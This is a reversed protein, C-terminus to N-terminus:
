FSGRHGFADVITCPGDASPASIQSMDDVAVVVPTDDACTLTIQTGPILPAAATPNGPVSRLRIGLPAEVYELTLLENAPTVRIEAPSVEFSPLEIRYPEPEKGEERITRGEVIFRYTGLPINTWGDAEIGEGVAQWIFSWFHRREVFLDSTKAPSPTHSLMIGPGNHTAPRGDGLDIPEFTGDRNYQLTVRPNDISVDGGEFAAFYFGDLARVTQPPTLPDLSNRPLGAPLVFFQENPLPLTVQKGAESTVHRTEDFAEFGVPELSTTVPITVDDTRIVFDELGREALPLTAELLYEAQLPGWINIGPEYGGALWDEITMFYGEHDNAFGVIIGADYGLDRLYAEARYGFLTCTEGPVFLLGVKASELTNVTDGDISTMPIGDFKAFGMVTTTMGPEITKPGNSTQTFIAGHDMEYLDTLLDGFQDVLVCYRYPAAEPGNLGFGLAALLSGAGPECLGAGTPAVFEDILEIVDGNDDFIINDPAVEPTSDDDFKHRKYRFNKTGRRTVTIDELSQPVTINVSDMTFPNSTTVIADVARKVKPPTIRSLRDASSLAPGDDVPKVDGAYGQLFVVPLGQYSASIGHVIAGPADWHAWLNNADFLTGHIGFHIGLAKLEGAANDVRLIHARPDKFGEGTPEGTLSTLLDNAARRDAFIQDEGIPDFDEVVGFGLKAPELDAYAAMSVEVMQTVMRQAIRPDFRDFGPAFHMSGHHGAYGSHTHNVTFVVQGQLDIGTRESLETTVAHLIGDFAAGLDATIFVMHRDDNTIWLADLAIGTTAGVSPFFKHAWPSTRRDAPQSASGGGLGLNVDRATFAGLPVGIPVELYSEAVGARPAGAKLDIPVYPDDSDGSCAILVSLGLVAFLRCHNM